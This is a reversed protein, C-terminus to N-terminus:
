RKKMEDILEQGSKHVFIPNILKKKDIIQDIIEITQKKSYYYVNIRAKKESNLCLVINPMPTIVFRMYQNLSNNSDVTIKISQIDNYKIDLAYQLKIGKGGIDEQVYIGNEFLVIKRRFVHLLKYSFYIIGIISSIFSSWGIFNQASDFYIFFSAFVYLLVILILVLIILSVYFMVSKPSYKKM